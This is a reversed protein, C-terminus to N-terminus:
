LVHYVNIYNHLNDAQSIMKSTLITIFITIIRIIDFNWAMICTHKCQSRFKGVVEM